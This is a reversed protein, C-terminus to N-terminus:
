TKAAATTLLIKVDTAFHVWGLFFIFLYIFLGVWGGVRVQVCARVFACVYAFVCLRRSRNLLPLLLTFSSIFSDSFPPRRPVMASICGVTLILVCKCLDVKPSLLPYSVIQLKDDSEMIQKMKVSRIHLLFVEGTKVLDQGPQRIIEACSAVLLQLQLQHCLTEPSQPCGAELDRTVLRQDPVCLLTTSLLLIFSFLSSGWQKLSCVNRTVESVVSCHTNGSMFCMEVLKKGAVALINAFPVLILM